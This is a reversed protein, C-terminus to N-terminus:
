ANAHREVNQHQAAVGARGLHPVPDFGALGIEVVQALAPRRREAGSMHRDRARGIGHATSRPWNSGRGSVLCRPTVSLFDQLRIMLWLPPIVYSEPTGM